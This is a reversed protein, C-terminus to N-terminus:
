PATPNPDGRLVHTYGAQQVPLFGLSEWFRVSGPAANLTILHTQQKAAALLTQAILRAIGVRRFAPRVYFRRMRLADPIYPDVTIGGVGALDTGSRAVLLTEGPQDFRKDGSAWDAAVRDLFSHGEARAEARLLDFDAPLSGTVREVQM